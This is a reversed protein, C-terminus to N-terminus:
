DEKMSDGFLKELESVVGADMIKGLRVFTAMNLFIRTRTDEAILDVEPLLRAGDPTMVIPLFANQAKGESIRRITAAV